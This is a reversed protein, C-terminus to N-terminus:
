AILTISLNLVSLSVLRRAFLPFVAGLVNRVFSQAANASSSFHEYADSLYSSYLTVM